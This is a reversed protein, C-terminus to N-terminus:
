SARRGFLDALRFGRSRPRSTKRSPAGRRFERTLTPHRNLPSYWRPAEVTSGPGAAAARQCSALVTEWADAGLVAPGLWCRRGSPPTPSQVARRFARVAHDHRQLRRYFTGLVLHIEVDNPRHHALGELAATAEATLGLRTLAVVLNGRAEPNDPALRITKEFAARAGDWDGSDALAEGLELHAEPWLPKALVADRCAAAAGRSWGISKLIRALTLHLVATRSM